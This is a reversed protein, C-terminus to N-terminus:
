LTIIRYTVYFDLTGDGAAPNGTDAKVTLATNIGASALVLEGGEVIPVTTITSITFSLFSSLPSNDFVTGEGFILNVNSTYQTTVFNKRVLVSIPLIFTGAGQAAVLTKPVSNLNLIEASSVSVKVTAIKSSVYTEVAAVSPYKANSGTDTTISTSLYAEVIDEPTAKYTVGSKVLPISETGVLPVALAPLASIKVEAM